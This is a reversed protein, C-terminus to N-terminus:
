LAVDNVANYEDVDPVDNEKFQNITYVDVGYGGSAWDMFMCIAKYQEESLKILILSDTEVNEIKYVQKEM